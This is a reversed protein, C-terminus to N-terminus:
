AGHDAELALRARLTADALQSNLRYNERLLDLREAELREIRADREALKAAIIAAAAQSAPGDSLGVANSSQYADKAERWLDMAETNPDTAAGRVDQDSM